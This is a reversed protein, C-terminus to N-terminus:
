RMIGLFTKWCLHQIIGCLFILDILFLPSINEQVARSMKGYYFCLLLHKKHIIAGYFRM